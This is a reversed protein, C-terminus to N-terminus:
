RAVERGESLFDAIFREQDEPKVQSSVLEAAMKTVLEASEEQLSRRARAVEQDAVLQADRRIHEATKEAQEVMREAETKALELIEERARAAESELSQMRMEFQAKLREAEQQARDAAELAEVVGDHRDQLYEKILPWAFRRMIEFFIAFNAFGWLTLSWKPEHGGDGSAIALTPVAAVFLASLLARIV